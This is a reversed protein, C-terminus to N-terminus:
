FNQLIYNDVTTVILIDRLIIGGVLEAFISLPVGTYEGKGQWFSLSNEYVSNGTVNRLNFIDDLSLTKIEGTM